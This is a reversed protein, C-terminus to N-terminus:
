YSSQRQRMMNKLVECWEDMFVKSESLMPIIWFFHPLGIWEKLTAKVGQSKCEQYFSLTEMYTPDATTAAIHM